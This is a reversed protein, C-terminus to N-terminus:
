RLQFLIFRLLLRSWLWTDGGHSSTVKRIKSPYRRAAPFWISGSSQTESPLWTGGKTVLHGQSCRAGNIKHVLRWWLVRGPKVFFSISVPLCCSGNKEVAVLRRPSDSKNTPRDQEVFKSPEGQSVKAHTIWMIFHAVFLTLRTWCVRNKAIDWILYPRAFFLVRWNCKFCQILM